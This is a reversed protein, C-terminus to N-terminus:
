SDELCRVVDSGCKICKGKLKLGFKDDKFVYDTITTEGCKRCFVNSLLRQQINKPIKSWKQLAKIDSVKDM